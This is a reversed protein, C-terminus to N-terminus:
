PPGGQHPGHQRHHQGPQGLGGVGVAAQGGQPHQGLGQAVPGREVAHDAVVRGPGLQEAGHEAAGPQEAVHQGAVGGRGGGPVSQAAELAALQDPHGDAVEGALDRDLLDPGLQGGEGLGAQGGPQQDRHALGAVPRGRHTEGDEGHALQTPGLEAVGGVQVHQEAV